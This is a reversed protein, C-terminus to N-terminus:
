KCTPPAKEPATISPPRTIIYSSHAEVALDNLSTLTGLRDGFEIMAVVSQSHSNCPPTPTISRPSTGAPPIKINRVAYFRLFTWGRLIDQQM